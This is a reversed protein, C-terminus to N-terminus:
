CCFSFLNFCISFINLYILVFNTLSISYKNTLASLINGNIDSLLESLHSTYDIHSM